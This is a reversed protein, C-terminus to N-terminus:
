NQADMREISNNVKSRYIARLILFVIFLDYHVETMERRIRRDKRLGKTYMSLCTRAKRM